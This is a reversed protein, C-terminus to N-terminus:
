NNKRLWYNTTDLNSSAIPCGLQKDVAVFLNMINLVWFLNVMCSVFFFALALSTLYFFGTSWKIRSNKFSYDEIGSFLSFFM